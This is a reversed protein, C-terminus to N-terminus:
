HKKLESAHMRKESVNPHLVNSEPFNFAFVPFLSSGGLCHEMERPFLSHLSERSGVELLSSAREEPAM